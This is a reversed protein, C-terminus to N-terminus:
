GGQKSDIFELFKQVYRNINYSNLSPSSNVEIIYFKGTDRERIIDVGGFDLGLSKVAQICMSQAEEHCRLKLEPNCKTFKSNDDKMISTETIEDELPTKEYVGIVEDGFVHVRYERDKNIPKTLYYDSSAYESTLRVQKSTGSRAFFLGDENMLSPILSIVANSDMGKTLLVPPVTVGETNALTTMMTLKNSANVVAQKKNIEIAPTNRTAVSNSNGWRILVDTNRVLKDKMVRTLKSFVEGEMMFEYLAKGTVCSKNSYAIVTNTM